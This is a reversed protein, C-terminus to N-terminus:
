RLFTRVLNEGVLPFRRELRSASKEFPEKDYSGSGQTMSLDRPHDVKSDVAQSDHGKQNQLGADVLDRQISASLDKTPLDRTPKKGMAFYRKLYETRNKENEVEGGPTLTQNEKRNDKPRSQPDGPGSLAMPEATAEAPDPLEQAVMVNANDPAKTEQLAQSLKQFGSSRRQSHPM